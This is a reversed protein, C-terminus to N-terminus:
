IRDEKAETTLICMPAAIKLTEVLAGNQAMDLVTVTDSYQNASLLYRDVLWIDRPYKGHCPITDVLTLRSDAFRLRAVSDHGRNSVLVENGRIRIAATYSEDRFDEPLASVTHIYELRGDRYSFLSVTSKLENACFLFRGDESFALHRAGHGAPVRTVSHLKLDRDYLYISDTGLDAVCVYKREPTLGVFHPHAMEQRDPNPGSGTHQVLTGPLKIVSASSYNACYVEGRDALIHCATRGMASRIESPSGLFGKEDMECSIVGSEGKDGPDRLTVYLRNEWIDLFMPRDMPTFAVLTFSGSDTMRYHYIGGDRCCSAIYVNWAM